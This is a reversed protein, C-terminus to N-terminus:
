EDSQKERLLEKLNTPLKFSKRDQQYNRMPIIKDDDERDRSSRIEETKKRRETQRESRKNGTIGKVSLKESGSELQADKAKRAISQLENTLNLSGSRQKLKSTAAITAKMDKREWVEYMSLNEYERSRKTLHAEIFDNFSASPRIYIIDSSYVDYAVTVKRTGTYNREFWGWELAETCSYYCGFLRLGHVTITASTHPMLNIRVLEPDPRRLKGTRNKIGWKWLNMPIHEFDSPIDSDPDYKSIFSENNYYRVIRIIMGTFEKLTLVSDLRYDKGHRKKGIAQGTVYGDVFPKM